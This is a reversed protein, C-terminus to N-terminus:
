IMMHKHQLHMDTLLAVFTPLYCNNRDVTRTQM